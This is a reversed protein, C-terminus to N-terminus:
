KGAGMYQLHLPLYIKFISPIRVKLSEHGQGQRQVQDYPMGDLM